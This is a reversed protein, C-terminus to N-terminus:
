RDFRRPDFISRYLPQAGGLVMACIVEATLPAFLFGNRHHGTAVLLGDVGTEGVIPANDPSGPRMAARIEVIEFERLSPLVRIADRLLSHVGRVTSREDLGVDEQTAGIVVRGDRHPVVYVSVGAVVARVNRTIRVSSEPTRLRIIEGKIPRTPARYGDVGCEFASSSWGAALLVTGASVTGDPTEVGLVRHNHLAIGLADTRMETVGLNRCAVGLASLLLRNDVSADGSAFIGGRLAPSMLPEIEGARSSSIMESPLGLARHFEFLEELHVYDSGDVGVLLTGGVEYGVDFGADGALDDAFAPWSRSSELAATVLAEEGYAAETVPALMGAAAYSAGSSPHPDIIAVSRGTRALRWACSRGIVGAGVVAVDFAM